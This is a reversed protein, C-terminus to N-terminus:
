NLSISGKNDSVTLTMGQETGEKGHCMFILAKSYGSESSNWSFFIVEEEEHSNCSLVLSSITVVVLSKDRMIHLDIKFIPSRAKIEGAIYTFNDM